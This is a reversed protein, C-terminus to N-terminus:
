TFEILEIDTINVEIDKDYIRFKGDKFEFDNDKTVRISRGDSFYIYVYDFKEVLEEVSKQNHEEIM